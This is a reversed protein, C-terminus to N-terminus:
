AVRWEVQCWCPSRTSPQGFSHFHRGRTQDGNERVAEVAVAISLGALLSRLDVNVASLFLVLRRRISAQYSFPNHISPSPGLAEGTKVLGAVQEFPNRAGRM